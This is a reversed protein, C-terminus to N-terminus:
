LTDQAGRVMKMAHHASIMILASLASTDRAELIGRTALIM